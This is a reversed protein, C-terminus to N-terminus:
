RDLEMLGERQQGGDRETGQVVPVSDTVCGEREGAHTERKRNRDIRGPWIRYTHTPVTAIREVDGHMQGAARHTLGAAHLILENELNTIVSTMKKREMEKPLSENPVATFGFSGTIVM